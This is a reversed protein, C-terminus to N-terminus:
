AEGNKWRTRALQGIWLGMLRSVEENNRPLVVNCRSAHSFHHICYQGAFPEYSVLRNPVSGRGGAFVSFEAVRVGGRRTLSTPELPNTWHSCREHSARQLTRTRNYRQLRKQLHDAIM